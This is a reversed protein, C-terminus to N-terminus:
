RADLDPKLIITVRTGDPPLVNERLQLRGRGAAYDRMTYAANAVKGGPCSQLCIVCGSEFEPILAGNGAFRLKVEGSEFIEGLPLPEERGEWTVFADVPTGEAILDPDTAEPQKRKYWSDATLNNGPVAGLRELAELVTRDSADCVFLANGSSGGGKWVVVHHGPVPRDDYQSSRVTAPLSVAGREVDISVASAADDPPAAKNRCGSQMPWSILMLFLGCWRAAGILRKM